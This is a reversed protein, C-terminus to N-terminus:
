KIKFILFIKDGGRYFFYLFLIFKRVGGGQLALCIKEGVDRGECSTHVRVRSYKNHRFYLIYYPYQTPTLCQCLRTDSVSCSLFSLHGHKM